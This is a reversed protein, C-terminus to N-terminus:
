NRLVPLVNRYVGMSISLTYFTNFSDLTLHTVTLFHDLFKASSYKEFRFVRVLLVFKTSNTRHFEIKLIKKFYFDKKLFFTKIM